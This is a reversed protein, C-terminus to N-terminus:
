YLCLFFTGFLNSYKKYSYINSNGVLYEWLINYFTSFRDSQYNEFSKSKEPSKQLTSYSKCINYIM